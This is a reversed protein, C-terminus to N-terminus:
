VKRWGPIWPGNQVEYDGFLAPAEKAMLQGIKGFILRVQPEVRRL